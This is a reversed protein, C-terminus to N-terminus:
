QDLDSVSNISKIDFSNSIRKILGSLVKNPGIEIIKSEGMKELKLISETWKVKNSMQNKLAFKLNSIKNTEMANFNSIIKIDNENFTVKDIESGLINQAENMYKSHFAASVNLIIYKKVSNQLFFEKNKKIEEMDGSIVVQIPSNDNAIEIEFNNEDILKQIYTSNKGILAAMGSTNPKVADNMLEGRKKLLLSCDKLSLKNSCALASYEGLSHGMMVNISKYELDTELLLTKFIVVSSTFIAIQTFKTTNLLNNKDDFILSKLDMQVYNEIEEFIDRSAKFKDYFDKVMGVYQSGQGPFVISTM